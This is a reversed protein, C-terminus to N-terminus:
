NQVKNDFLYVDDPATFNFNISDGSLVKIVYDPYAVGPSWGLQGGVDTM